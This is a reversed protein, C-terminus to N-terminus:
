GVGKRGGQLRPPRLVTISLREDPIMVRGGGWKREIHKVGGKMKELGGWRESEEFLKKGDNGCHTPHREKSGEWSM